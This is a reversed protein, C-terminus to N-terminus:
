QACSLQLKWSDSPLIRARRAGTEKLTRTFISAKKPLASLLSEIDIELPVYPLRDQRKYRPKSFPINKWKCNTSYVDVMLEKRGESIDKSAIYALVADPNNLQTSKAINKLVKSYNQTITTDKYGQKKLSWLFKTIDESYLSPTYLGPIPTSGM